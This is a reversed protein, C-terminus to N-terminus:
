MRGQLLKGHVSLAHWNLQQSVQPQGPQCVRGEKCLHATMGVRRQTRAAVKCSRM